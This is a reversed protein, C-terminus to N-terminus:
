SLINRAVVFKNRFGKQAPFIFSSQLAHMHNNKLLLLQSVKKLTLNNISKEHFKKLIEIKIKLIM